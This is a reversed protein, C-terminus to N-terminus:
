SIKVMIRWVLFGERRLSVAHAMSRLRLLYLHHHMCLTTQLYAEYTALATTAATAADDRSEDLANTRGDGFHGTQSDALM